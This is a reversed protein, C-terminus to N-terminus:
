CAAARSSPATRSGSREALAAIVREPDATFRAAARTLADPELLSDSDVTAVLEQGAINLGANIADSRGGNQKAVVRLRPDARSVYLKEIPASPLVLRDGVPLEVLDFARFMQMLTDDRSGDDVIVVELPDYDCALFSRVSSVIVPGEDHAPAILTIGPALPHREPAVQAGQEARAMVTDALSLAILALTAVMYLVFFVFFPIAAFALIEHVSM